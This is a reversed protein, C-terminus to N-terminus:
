AVFIQIKSLMKKYFLFQNRTCSRLRTCCKSVPLFKEKLWHWVFLKATKRPFTTKYFCYCVNKRNKCLRIYVRSANPSNEVIIFVRSKTEPKCLQRLNEWGREHKYWAICVHFINEIAQNCFLPKHDGREMTLDDSALDNCQIPFAYITGCNWYFNSILHAKKDEQSSSCPIYMLLARAEARSKLKYFTGVITNHFM